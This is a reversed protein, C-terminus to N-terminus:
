PKKTSSSPAAPTNLGLEDDLWKSMKENLADQRRLAEARAARLNNCISEQEALFLPQAKALLKNKQMEKTLRKASKFAMMIAVHGGIESDGDILIKDRVGPM